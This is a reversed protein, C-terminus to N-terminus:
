LTDVLGPCLWISDKAANRAETDAAASGAVLLVFQGVVLAVVLGAVTALRTAPQSLRRKWAARRMGGMTPHWPRITGCFTVLQM